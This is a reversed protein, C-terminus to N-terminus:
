RSGAIADSSEATTKVRAAREQIDFRFVLVYGGDWSAEVLGMRKPVDALAIVSGAPIMVTCMGCGEVRRAAVIPSTLRYREM